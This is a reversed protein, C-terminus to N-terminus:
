EALGEEERHLIREYIDIMRTVNEDWDYHEEVKRRGASGLKRREAPNEILRDIAASLADVDEPPVVIGTEEHDVVEPLGGVDTAVVPLGASSAEVAAVGFSERRSSVVFIDLDRLVEPVEPNPIAGHFHIQSPCSSCERMSLLRERDSGDGVVHMEIGEGHKGVLEDFAKLLIDIGYVPELKKVIGISVADTVDRKLRSPSFLDTDVGFPTVVPRPLSSYIRQMRDAMAHSTALLQDTRELLYRQISRHLPSRDPYEYIDAGYLSVLWPRGGSLRGMLAYGGASHSHVLDPSRSKVLERVRRGTLAYSIRGVSPLEVVDVDRHIPRQIPHITVFTVDLGSEVLANAWRTAHYSKGSALLMVAM